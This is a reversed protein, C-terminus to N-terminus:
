EFRRYPDLPSAFESKLTTTIPLGLDSLGRVECSVQVTYVGGPAWRTNAHTVTIPGHCIHQLSAKATQRAANDAKVQNGHLSGARAADRAAGDLEGRADTLQGFAVLVLIFLLLVPAIIVVEITSIGADGRARSGGTSRAAAARRRIGAAAARAAATATTYTM